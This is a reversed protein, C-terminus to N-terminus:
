QKGPCLYVVNRAFIRSFSSKKPLFTMIRSLDYFLSENPLEPHLDPGIEEFFDPDQGFDPFFLVVPLM